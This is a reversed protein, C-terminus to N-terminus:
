YICRDLWILLFYFAVRLFVGKVMWIFAISCNTSLVRTHQGNLHFGDLLILHFWKIWMESILYRNCVLTWFQLLSTALSVSFHSKAVLVGLCAEIVCSVQVLTWPIPKMKFQFVKHKIELLFSARTESAKLKWLFYNVGLVTRIQVSYDVNLVAMNEATEVATTGHVFSLFM